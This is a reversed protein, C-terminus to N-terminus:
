KYYKKFSINIKRKKLAKQIAVKKKNCIIIMAIIVVVSSTIGVILISNERLFFPIIGTPPIIIIPDATYADSENIRFMEKPNHNGITAYLKREYEKQIFEENEINDPYTVPTTKPTQNQTGIIDKDTPTSRGSQNILEVIESTNVYWLDDLERDSSLTISTTLNIVGSSKTTGDQNNLAFDDAQIPLLFRSLSKNMEENTNNYIGEDVSLALNSKGSSYDFYFKNSSDLINKKGNDKDVFISDDLYREVGPHDDNGISLSTWYHNEGINEDQNFELGTPVYDLIGKVKTRSIVDDNVVSTYYTTGLYKGYYGNNNNTDYISKYKVANLDNGLKYNISESNEYNVGFEKKLRNYAIGSITKSELAQGEPSNIVNTYSGRLNDLNISIRDVEGENKVAFVYNIIVSAGQILSNDVTLVSPTYGFNTSDTIMVNELGKSEENLTMGILAHTETDYVEDYKIDSLVTNDELVVKFESIYKSLSVANKPRYEIGFDINNIKYKYTVKNLLNDIIDFDFTTRNLEIEDSDNTTLETNLKIFGTDAYMFTKDEYEKKANEQDDQTKDKAREINIQNIVSQEKNTQIEAYSMNQLRRLEDDLADNKNGDMMAKLGSNIGPEYAFLTNITDRDQEIGTYKTSKFDQGNYKLENDGIESNENTSGYYFRTKYIGPIISKLEYKGDSDSTSILKQKDDGVFEKYAKSESNSWDYEYLEYLGDSKKIRIEEILHASVGAIRRDKNSDKLSMAEEKKVDEPNYLGNGVYQKSTSDNIEESRVDEWVYGTITREASEEGGNQKPEIKLKAEYTDDEYQSVDEYEGNDLTGLNGPNSDEDILGILDESDNLYISYANIEVINRTLGEMKLLKVVDGTSLTHSEKDVTFTLYFEAEHGEPIDIPTQLFLKNLKTDDGSKDPYLATSDYESDNSTVFNNLETRVLNGEADYVKVIIKDNLNTKFTKSYHDTLEKIRAYTKNHAESKNQITIKYEVQIELETYKKYDKIEYNKYDSSQYYYDSSYINLKYFLDEEEGGTRYARAYASNEINGQGYGYRTKEGNIYTTIANVDNTVMLDAKKYVLGLNIYKLYESDGQVDGNTKQLWLPTIDEGDGFSYAKLFHIQDITSVHGDKNYNMDTVVGDKSRAKNYYITDMLNYFEERAKNSEKANSDIEYNSNISLDSMDINSMGAYDTSYYHFGDYIYEIIYQIYESNNSYRGTSDNRNTAKVVRGSIDIMEKTGEINTTNYSISGDAIVLNNIKYGKEGAANFSYYGDSNTTTSMCKRNTIDILRVEIGDIGIESNNMLGDENDDDWVHGSIVVNKLRVYEKNRSTGDGNLIPKINKNNRNLISILDFRNEIDYLYFNSTSVELPIEINLTKGYELKYDDDFTITFEGEDQVIDYPVDVGDLKISIANKDIGLNVDATDKLVLGYFDTKDNNTGTSTNKFDIAYTICDGKEIEFSNDYRTDNTMDKRDTVPTFDTEGVHKIDKIYKNIDYNYVQYQIGTSSSKENQNFETLEVEDEKYISVGNKNRVEKVTATNSLWATTKSFYKVECEIDVWFSQTATLVPGNFIIKNTVPDYTTQPHSSDPRYSKFIFQEQDIVDEIEAYGITGWEKDYNVDNKLNVRFQITDGTECIKNSITNERDRESRITYNMKFIKVNYKTIILLANDTRDETNIRGLVSYLDLDNKGKLATLTATNQLVLNVGKVTSKINYKLFISKTAGTNLNGAFTINYNGDSVKQVNLNSQNLTTSYTGDITTAFGLFETYQDRSYDGSEVVSTSTDDGILTEEDITTDDIITDDTTTDDNVSTEDVTSTYDDENYDDIITDNTTSTDDITEDPASGGTYGGTYGGGYDEVYDDETTITSDAEVYKGFAMSDSLTIDKLVGYVKEDAQANNKVKIEMIVTDGPEVYSKHAQETSQNISNNNIKVISKDIDFYYTKLKVFESDTAGDIKNMISVGSTNKAGVIEVKNEYIPNNKTIAIPLPKVLIYVTEKKGAAISGSYKFTYPSNSTKSWNGHVITGDAKTSFDYYEMKTTNFTDKFSVDKVASAGNNKITVQYLLMENAEVLIPQDEKQDESLTSRGSFHTKEGSIQGNTTEFKDSLCKNIDLDYAGFSWSKSSYKRFSKGRLATLDQFTTDDVYDTQGIFTIGKSEFESRANSIRFGTVNSLTVGKPVIYIKKNSIDFYTDDYISDTGHTNVKIRGNANTSAVKRGNYYIDCKLTKWQQSADAVSSDRYRFVLFSNILDAGVNYKKTECQRFYGRATIVPCKVHFPGILGSSTQTVASNNTVKTVNTKHSSNNIKAKYSSFTASILAYTGKFNGPVPTGNLDMSYSYGLMKTFTNKKTNDVTVNNSDKITQAKYILYQLGWKRSWHDEGSAYNSEVLYGQMALRSAYFKFPNTSGSSVGSYNKGNIALTNYIDGDSSFQMVSGIGRGSGNTDFQKSISGTIDTGEMCQLRIEELQVLGGTYYRKKSRPYVDLKNFITAYKDYTNYTSGTRGVIVMIKDTNLNDKAYTNTILLIASLLIFALILLKMITKKYKTNKLLKDSLILVVFSLVIILLMVILIYTIVGTSISIIFDQSSINNEKNTEEILEDNSTEEISIKNNFTGLSSDGIEKYIILYITRWETPELREKSLGSYYVANDNGVSWNVNQKEDIKFGEPLIDKLQLVYGSINGVNEVRIEYKITIIANDAKKRNLEIKPLVDKETYSYDKYEDSYKIAVSEINSSVEFDVIGKTTLGLNINSVDHNLQIKESVAFFKTQNDIKFATKTCNSVVSDNTTANYKTIAQNDNDYDFVVYYNGEELNEFLYSGESDSKTQNVQFGDKIEGKFLYVTIDSITDEDEYIGDRNTDLWIIGEISYKNAKVYSTQTAKTISGSETNEVYKVTEKNEIISDNKEETKEKISNNSNKSINEENGKEKNDNTNINENNSEEEDIIEDSKDTSDKYSTDENNSAEEDKSTDEDTDKESVKEDIWNERVIDDPNIYYIITNSEFNDSDVKFEIKDQETGFDFADVTGKINIYAVEGPKLNFGQVNALPIEDGNSSDYIEKNGDPYIYELYDILLGNEVPCDVEFYGVVKGINKIEVYYEVRDGNSIISESKPNSTIKSSYTTYIQGATRTYDNSYYTKDNYNIKGIVTFDESERDLDIQGITVPLSLYYNTNAPIHDITYQVSNKTDAEEYGSIFDVAISKWENLTLMKPMDIKVIVYDKTENTNNRVRVTMDFNNASAVNPYNVNELQGPYIEIEFESDVVNNSITKIEGEEIDDGSIKLIGYVDKSGDPQNNRAFVQYTFVYSEGAKLEEITEEYTRHTGDTDELDKYVPAYTGDTSSYNEYIERYYMNGNHVSGSLKINKISEEGDNHIVYSYKIMQGNFVDEGDKLDMGAVTARSGITITDENTEIDINNQCDELSITAIDTELCISTEDKCKQNEYEYYVTCINYAKQNIGLDEPIVLQYRITETEGHSMVGEDIVIKFSKVESLNEPKEVWSDDEIECDLKNSYYIKSLLGSTNITGKLKTDFTSNITEFNSDVMGVAPVRGVIVVNNIDKNYNNVLTIDMTAVKEDGNTDLRGIATDKELHYIKEEENNYNEVRTLTIIGINSYYSADCSFSPQGDNEYATKNRTGNTYMLKVSTADTPTLDNVRLKTEVIIKTGPMTLGLNYEEQNGKLDISIAKNGNEGDVVDWKDLSLGNKNLLNVSEIEVDNIMSPLIIEFSPNVFPEYKVDSTDLDIEFRVENDLNTSFVNNDIDLTAKSCTEKLEIIQEEKHSEVVFENEEFSAKAKEEVTSKIGNIRSIMGNSYYDTGLFAKQNTLVLTGEKAGIVRFALRDYSEGYEFIYKDDIIESNANIEGICQDKYYIEIFGNEGIIEDFNEKSIETKVFKVEDDLLISTEETEFEDIGMDVDYWANLDSNFTDVKVVQTYLTDYKNKTIRSARMYGKYIENSESSLELKTEVTEIENENKDYAEITKRVNEFANELVITGKLNFEAFDDVDEPYVLRLRYDLSIEDNSNDLEDEVIKISKSNSINNKGAIGCYLPKIDNYELDDFTLIISDLDTGNRKIKVKVLQEVYTEKEFLIVKNIKTETNIEVEELSHEEDIEIISQSEGMSNNEFLVSNKLNNRITNDMLLDAKWNQNDIEIEDESEREDIEEVEMEEANSINLLGLINSSHNFLILIIIVLILIKKSVQSERM